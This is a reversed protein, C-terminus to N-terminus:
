IEKRGELARSITVNDTYELDGGIPIGSALRTVKVGLPKILKAIYMATAEGEVTPNTALVIETNSLTKDESISYIRSILQNITLKDSGIGDLPSICGHLVHFVGDYEHVKQIALVDKPREVVCILNKRRNPSQCDSCVESDCINCCVKCRVIKQKVEGIASQFDKIEDDSFGLVSFAMRYASKRGVGPLKRFCEALHEIPAAYGDNINNM